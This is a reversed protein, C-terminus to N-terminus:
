ITNAFALYIFTKGNANQGAQTTVIQFGDSNFDMLGVASYEAMSSNADLRASNPNSTDRKNDLMTWDGAQDVGKIMVFAPEFGLTVIPGTASGNGLYTGVKSYNPKSAFCYAIYNYNNVNVASLYNTYFVNSTPDAIPYQSYLNNKTVSDNLELRTSWNDLESSFVNWDTANSTSKFIILEPPVDMGHGVSQGTATTAGTLNGTYSVISFGLDNNASVTSTITGETNQTLYGPLGFTVNSATGNYSGSLDNANEGLPYAAICGAGSPFNLVSNDAKTENYLQTIESSTLADNFFRVQGIQDNFYHSGGSRGIRAGTNQGYPTPNVTGELVGNLYVKVTIAPGYSGSTYTGWGEAVLTVHTWSTGTSANLYVYENSSTPTDNTSTGTAIDIRGGKNCLHLLFATSYLTDANYWFSTTVATSNLTLSTQIYGNSGNFDASNNAAPAKFCWAVYTQSSSNFFSYTQNSGESGTFGDSDFSTLQGYTTSTTEATTGDSALYRGTGRVSNYLTHNQAQRAKAWILDPKFGVGTISRTSAGDGSWIVTNFSTNLENEFYRWNTGNYHTIATVSGKSSQTTDNRVMGTVGTPQTSSTGSPIKLGEETFPKDFDTVPTTVKTTAM